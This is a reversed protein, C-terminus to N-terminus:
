VLAPEFVNMNFFSAPVDRLHSTKNIPLLEVSSNTSFALSTEQYPKDTGDKHDCITLGYLVLGSAADGNNKWLVKNPLMRLRAVSEDKKDPRKLCVYQDAAIALRQFALIEPTITDDRKIIRVGLVRLDRCWFRDTQGQMTAIHVWVGHVTRLERAYGMVVCTKGISLHIQMNPPVDHIFKVIEITTGVPVFDERFM